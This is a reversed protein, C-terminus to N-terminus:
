NVGAKQHAKSTTLLQTLGILWAMDLCYEFNVLKGKFYGSSCTTLVLILQNTAQKLHLYKVSFVEFVKYSCLVTFDLIEYMEVHFRM